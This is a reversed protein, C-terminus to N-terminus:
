NLQYRLRFTVRDRELGDGESGEYEFSLSVRENLTSRLGIGYNVASKGLRIGDYGLQTTGDGLRGSVQHANGNLQRQWNLKIFPSIIKDTFGDWRVGLSTWSAKHNRDAISWELGNGAVEDFQALDSDIATFAATTTFGHDDGTQFFYSAAAHLSWTEAGSDGSYRISGMARSADWDTTQRDIALGVNLGSYKVVAYAGFLQTDGHLRSRLDRHYSRDKGTAAYIGLDVTDSLSANFGATFGRTMVEQDARGRNKVDSLNADQYTYDAWFGTGDAEFLVNQLVSSNSLSRQEVMNVSDAYMQPSAQALQLTLEDGHSNILDAVRSSHSASLENDNVLNSLYQAMRRESATLDLGTGLATEISFGVEGTLYELRARLNPNQSERALQFRGTIGETATILTGSARGSFNTDAPVLALTGDVGAAGMIHIQDNDTASYEMVVVSQPALTLDGIIDISGISSGPTMIGASMVDGVIVGNGALVATEAIEINAFLTADELVASGGAIAVTDFESIDRDIALTGSGTKLLTEFGDTELILAEGTIDQQLVDLGMGGSLSGQHSATDTVVMLDDGAGLDIDGIIHGANRVVENGNGGQIATGASVVTGTATNEFSSVTGTLTDFRVAVSTLDTTRITGTNIVSNDEGSIVIGDSNEGETYITNDSTNSVSNGNGRVEVANSNNGSTGVTGDNAINNGQGGVSVATSNNGEAIMSQGENNTVNNDEGDIAIATSDDGTALVDGDNVVVSDLSTLAIVTAGNGTSTMDGNNQITNEEGTVSVTTSNDGESIINGDNIVVASQGDIGVTTSDDGSSVVQGSNAITAGNGDSQVGTAGDETYTVETSESIDLVSDDGVTLDVDVIDNEVALESGDSVQLNDFTVEGSFFLEVLGGSNMALTEFGTFQSGDLETPPEGGVLAALELTDVGENGEVSGSQTAGAYFIYTDDGAGLDVDGTITGQNTVTDNGSGMAIDGAITGSNELHDDDLGLSVDGNIEGQNSVLDNLGVKLQGEPVEFLLSGDADLVPILNGNEDVRYAGWAETEYVPFDGLEAARIAIGVGDGDADGTIIGDAGNNLTLRGTSVIADNGGSLTGSNEVTLGWLRNSIASNNAEVLGSNLFVPDTEYDDAPIPVPVLNGYGDDGYILSLGNGETGLALLSGTNEIVLASILHAGYFTDGTTWSDVEYGVFIADSGAGTATIVGSNDVRYDHTLNVPILIPNERGEQEFDLRIAHSAIGSTLIEGANLIHGVSHVNFGPHSLTDDFSDIEVDSNFRIGASNDGRAEILAGEENTIINTATISLAADPDVLRAFVDSTADLELDLLSEIAPAESGETIVQGGSMNTFSVSPNLENSINDISPNDLGWHDEGLENKLMVGGIGQVESWTDTFLEETCGDDTCSFVTYTESFNHTLSGGLISGSNTFNSGGDQVGGRVELVARDYTSAFSPFDSVASLGLTAALPSDEVFVNEFTQSAVHMMGTNEGSGVELRTTGSITGSNILTNVGAGLDVNGNITGANDITDDFSMDTLWIEENDGTVPDPVTVYPLGVTKIATAGTTAANIVGDATNVLDLNGGALAIAPAYRTWESNSSGTGCEQSLAQTDLDIGTWCENVTSGNIVGSNTLRLSGGFKSITGISVPGSYNDIGTDNDALGLAVRADWDPIFSQLHNDPDGFTGTNIVTDVGDGLELRYIFGSNDIVVNNSSLSGNLLVNNVHQPKVSGSFDDYYDRIDQNRIGLLLDGVNTIDWNGDALIIEDAVAGSCSMKGPDNPDAECSNTDQALGSASFCVSSMLATILLARSSRTSDTISYYSM